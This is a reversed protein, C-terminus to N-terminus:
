FICKKVIEEAEILSFNNTLTTIEFYENLSRELEIDQSFSSSIKFNEVPCLFNNDLQYIKRIFGVMKQEEQHFTLTVNQSKTVICLRYLCFTEINV